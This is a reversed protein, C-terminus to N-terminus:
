WWWQGANNITPRQVRQLGEDVTLLARKTQAIDSKVEPLGSNLVAQFQSAYISDKTFLGGWVLVAALYVDPHHTLLWNTTASDSLAFYQEFRFRFTYAADLQREFEITEDNKDFSYFRPPGDVSVRAFTGAAKPTLLYENEDRVLFLAIPSEVSHASVDISLSGLTGTLTADTEVGKIERNLRAEALQIFQEANGAVDARAMYDTVAAKLDTFNDLAM